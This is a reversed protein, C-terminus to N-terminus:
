ANFRERHILNLTLTDLRRTLSSRDRDCGKLLIDACQALINMAQQDLDKQYKEIASPDLEPCLDYDPKREERLATAFEAFSGKKSAPVWATAQVFGKEKMKDAYNKQYEKGTKM